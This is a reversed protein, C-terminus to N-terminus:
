QYKEGSMRKEPFNVRGYNKRGYDKQGYKDHKVADVNKEAWVKEECIM